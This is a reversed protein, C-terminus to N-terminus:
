PKYKYNGFKVAVAGAKRLFDSYMFTRRFNYIKAPIERNGVM